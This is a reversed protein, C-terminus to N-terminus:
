QRIQRSSRLSNRMSCAERGQRSSRLSNRMGGAERGQRGSRLVTGCAAPKEEKDAAGCAPEAHRAPRSKRKRPGTRLSKKIGM